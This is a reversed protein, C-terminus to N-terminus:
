FVFNSKFNSIFLNFSYSNEISNFKFKIKKGNGYLIIENIPNDLYQIQFSGLNNHHFPLVIRKEMFRM